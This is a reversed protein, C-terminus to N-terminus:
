IFSKNKFIEEEYRNFLCYFFHVRGSKVNRLERIAYGIDEVDVNLRWYTKNANQEGKDNHSCCEAQSVM